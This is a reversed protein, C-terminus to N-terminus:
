RLLTLDHILEVKPGCLALVVVDPTTITQYILYHIRTHGSYVVSQNANPGGPRSMRNKTCDILRILKSLPTGSNRMFIAYADVRSKIYYSRLNLLHGHENVFSDIVEWFVESLRSSHMGFEREMDEWCVPWLIKRFVICKVATVDCLYRKRKKVGANWSLLESIIKIM